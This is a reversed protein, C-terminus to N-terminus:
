ERGGNELSEIRGKLEDIQSQFNSDEITGIRNDIEGTVKNELRNIQTKMREGMRVAQTRKHAQSLTGSDEGVCKIQQGGRFKWTINTITTEHEIVKEDRIKIYQGLHLYQNGHYIGSFPRIQINSQYHYLADVIPSFDIKGDVSMHYNYICKIFPNNQIVTEIDIISKEIHEGYNCACWTKDETIVKASYLCIRFGAIELSDQQFESYDLIEPKPYYRQDEFLCFHIKGDKDATVFGGMYEALWSVYDRINDSQEDSSLLLLRIDENNKIDYADFDESANPIMKEDSPTINFMEERWFDEIIIALLNMARWLKGGQGLRNYVANGMGNGNDEFASGDLWCVNDSASITFIDHNKTVSTVNFVGRKGNDEPPNEGFWSYLIIEAGYVDYRSIEQSKIRIKASLQAPSVCGFGFTNGNVCQSTVSLSNQIIDDKSIEFFRGDPLTIELKAHEEIVM